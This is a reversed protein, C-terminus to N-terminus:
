HSEGISRVLKQIAERAVTSDNLLDQRHRVRIQNYDKFQHSHFEKELVLPILRRKQESKQVDKFFSMDREFAERECLNKTCVVLIKRSVQAAMSLDSVIDAGPEFLSHSPDHKWLVKYSKNRLPTYLCTRVM